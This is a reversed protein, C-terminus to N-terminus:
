IAQEQIATLAEPLNFFVGACLARLEETPETLDVVMVATCGAAAGARIGNEGDEFVYCDEPACGIREAALQFIDPAPKGHAVEEGSVVADFYHEIGAHKLNRQILALGTSSAVALKVGHEHLWSLIERIGTKEPVSTKLINEVRDLCAQMFAVADIDPYYSQIISLMTSGNSGCVAKPFEPNSVQGFAEALIIWSERYLRETDFLLGDMDFIAGHKM